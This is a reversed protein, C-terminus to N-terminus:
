EGPFAFFISQTMFYPFKDIEAISRNGGWCFPYGCSLNVPICNVAILNLNKAVNKLQESLL